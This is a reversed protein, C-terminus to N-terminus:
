ASFKALCINKSLLIFCAVLWFAYMQYSLNLQYGLLEVSCVKRTLLKIQKSARHFQGTIKEIMKYTETILIMTISPSIVHTPRWVCFMNVVVDIHMFPAYWIIM